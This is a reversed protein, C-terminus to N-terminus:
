GLDVEIFSDHGQSCTWKLVKQAPSYEAEDVVDSCAHCEFSGEVEFWPSSKPEEFPIEPM